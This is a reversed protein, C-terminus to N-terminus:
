TTNGQLGFLETGQWHMMIYGVLWLGSAIALVFLGTANGFLVAKIIAIALTIVTLQSLFHVSRMFKKGDLYVAKSRSHQNEDVAAFYFLSIFFCIFFTVVCIVVILFYKM